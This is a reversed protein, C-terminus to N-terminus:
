VDEHRPEQDFKFKGRRFVATYKLSFIYISLWLRM